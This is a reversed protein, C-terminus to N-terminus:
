VTLFECHLLLIRLFDLHKHKSESHSFSKKEKINDLLSM